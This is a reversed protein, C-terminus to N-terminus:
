NFSSERDIREWGKRRTTPAVYRKRPVEGEILDPRGADKGRREGRVSKQLVMIQGSIEM